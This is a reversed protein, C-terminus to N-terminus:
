CGWSIGLPKTNGGAFGCRSLGLSCPIKVVCPWVESQFHRSGIVFLKNTTEVLWESFHHLEDTPIIVNGVSHFFLGFTGFCWDSYISAFHFVIHRLM